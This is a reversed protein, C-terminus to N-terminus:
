RCTLIRSMSSGGAILDVNVTKFASMTEASDLLNRLPHVVLKSKSQEVINKNLYSSWKQEDEGFNLFNYAYTRAAMDSKEVALLLEGGARRLGLSLGGCGSFLDIYTFRGDDEGFQNGLM